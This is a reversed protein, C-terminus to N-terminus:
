GRAKARAIGFAEIEIAGGAYVRIFVCSRSPSSAPWSRQSGSLASVVKAQREADLQDLQEFTMVNFAM